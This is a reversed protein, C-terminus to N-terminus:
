WALPDCESAILDACAEPCANVRTANQCTYPTGNCIGECADLVFWADSGTSGEGCMSEDAEAFRDECTVADDSGGGRRGGICGVLLAAALLMRMAM